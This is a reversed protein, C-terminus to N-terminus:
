SSFGSEAEDNPAVNPNNFSLVIKSRKKPITNTTPVSTPIFVIAGFNSISRQPMATSAAPNPELTYKAQRVTPAKTPVAKNAFYEGTLNKRILIRIAIKPINARNKTFSKINIYM